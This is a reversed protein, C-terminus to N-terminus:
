LGLSLLIALADGDELGGEDVYAFANALVLANGRMALIAACDVDRGQVPEIWTVYVADRAGPWELNMRTFDRVQALALSTGLLLSEDNVSNPPSHDVHVSVAPFGAGTDNGRFTQSEVDRDEDTSAPEVTWGVPVEFSVGAVADARDGTRETPAITDGAELTPESDPLRDEPGKAAEIILGCGSLAALTLTLIAASALGRTTRTTTM